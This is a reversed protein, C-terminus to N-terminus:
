TLNIAISNNCILTQGKFFPFIVNEHFSIIDLFQQSIILPFHELSKRFVM